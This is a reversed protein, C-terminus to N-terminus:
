ADSDELVIKIEDVSDTLCEYAHELWKNFFKFDASDSDEEEIDFEEMGTIGFMDIDGVTKVNGSIWEGAALKLCTYEEVYNEFYAGEAKDYDCLMDIDRINIEQIGKEGEFVINDIKEVYERILKIEKEEPVEKTNKM